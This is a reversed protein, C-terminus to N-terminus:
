RLFAGGQYHVWRRSGRIIAITCLLSIILLVWAMASAYGMKFNIFGQSYLHVSYFLTSNQPSGVGNGQSVGAVVYAQAFYQFGFIIGTVVEFFIVPSVMPLSVHLFKRWRNAGEIDAAEYLHRPVDLFGALFIIMADGVGWLGLLVLGPKAWQPSFFWLPPHEVGLKRLLQNLPGYEPNLIYEFALTAAVVPAMTPLFYATRYTNVGRRKRTLLLATVIGFFIRVPLGVVIIWITNRVAVWFFPDTTFMFKYNLLGVWKPSAPINYKTFSWYLSAVMPALTFLAFGALWPSLYVLV